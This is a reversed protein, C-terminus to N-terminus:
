KPVYEVFDDAKKKWYAKIAKRRENTAINRWVRKLEWNEPTRHKAYKQAYKRKMKIGKRWESNVYPIDKERVRMKREPIHDQLMKGFLMKWHIYHDYVTDHIGHRM